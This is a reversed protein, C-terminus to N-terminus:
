KSRHAKLLPVIRDRQLFTAYDLPTSGNKDKTNADAGKELLLEVIRPNGGFAAYHL